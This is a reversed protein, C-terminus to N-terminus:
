AASMARLHGQTIFFALSHGGAIANAKVFSGVEVSPLVLYGVRLGPSKLEQRRPWRAM